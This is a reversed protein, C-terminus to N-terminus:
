LKKNLWDEFRFKYHYYRIRIFMIARDYWALEAMRKGIFIKIEEIDEKDM